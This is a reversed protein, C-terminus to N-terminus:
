KNTSIKTNIDAVAGKLDEKTFNMQDTEILIFTNNNLNLKIGSEITVSVIDKLEIEGVKSNDKFSLHSSTITISDNRDRILTYTSLIVPLISNLILYSWVLNYNTGSLNLQGILNYLYYGICAAIIIGVLKPWEKPNYIIIGDSETRSGVGSLVFSSIVSITTVCIMPWFGIIDVAFWILVFNLALLAFILIKKM